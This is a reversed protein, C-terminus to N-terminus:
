LVCWDNALLVHRYTQANAVIYHKRSFDKIESM